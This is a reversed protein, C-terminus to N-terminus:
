WSAAGPPRNAASQAQEQGVELRARRRQASPTPPARGPTARSGPGGPPRAPSGRASHGAAPAAPPPSRRSRPRAAGARGGRRRVELCRSGRGGSAHPSWHRTARPRAKAPERVREVLGHLAAMEAEDAQGGASEDDRHEGAAAHPRRRGPAPPRRDLARRGAALPPISRRALGEREADAAREAQEEEAGAQSAADADLVDVGGEAQGRPM